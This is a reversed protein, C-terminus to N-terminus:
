SLGSNYKLNSNIIAPKLSVDSQGNELIYQGIYERTSFLSHWSDTAEDYSLWKRIYSM